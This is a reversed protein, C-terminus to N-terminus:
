VRVARGFAVIELPMGRGFQGVTYMLHDHHALMPTQLVQDYQDNHFGHM